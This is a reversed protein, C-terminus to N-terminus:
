KILKREVLIDVISQGNAKGNMIAIRDANTAKRRLEWHMGTSPDYYTRDIMARERNKRHSVVLSKTANAVAVGLTIGAIIKEPNNLVWNGVEAALEVTANAVDSVKGTFEDKLEDFNSDKKM